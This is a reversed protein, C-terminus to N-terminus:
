AGKGRSGKKKKVAKMRLNLGEVLLAFAMAFYVYGKDFHTGISEAVLMVGILILFSLALMKVTPHREVFKSVTEAFVMMMGVAIIVATIMVWIQNAMGVATIVSDFSFVIDLMAIQFLVSGFSITGKSEQHEEEGELKKHIEQVAKAILFLGGGFLILDRVSIENVERSAVFYGEPVDVFWSFAFIPETAGLVWKIALLLIVRMIMALGLGIRRAKKQQEQPLRATLIAIFVINDIGLVIEMATLFLLAILDSSHSVDHM